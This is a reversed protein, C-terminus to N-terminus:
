NRVLKKVAKSEPRIGHKFSSDPAIKMSLSGSINLIMKFKRRVLYDEIYLSATMKVRINTIIEPAQTQFLVNIELLQQM